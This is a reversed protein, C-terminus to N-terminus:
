RLGIRIPLHAFEFRFFLDPEDAFGQLRGFATNLSSGFSNATGIDALVAIQVKVTSLEGGLNEFPDDVSGDHRKAEHEAMRNNGRALLAHIRVVLAASRNARM